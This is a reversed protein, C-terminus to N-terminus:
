TLFEAWIYVVHIKWGVQLWKLEEPSDAYDKGSIQIGM